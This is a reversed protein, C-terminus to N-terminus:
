EDDDDGIMAQFVWLLVITCIFLIISLIADVM